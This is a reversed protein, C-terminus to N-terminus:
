EWDEVPEEDVEPESTNSAATTGVLSTVIYTVMELYDGESAKYAALVLASLALLAYVRKRHRPPVIDNLPNSM